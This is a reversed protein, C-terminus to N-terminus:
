CLTKKTWVLRNEKCFLTGHLNLRLKGSKSRPGEDLPRLVFKFSQIFLIAQIWRDRSRPGEDLSTRLRKEQSSYHVIKCCMWPYTRTMNKTHTPHRWLTCMLWPRKDAAFSCNVCKLFFHKPWIKKKNPTEEIRVNTMGKKDAAFSCDRSCDLSPDIFCILLASWISRSHIHAIYAWECGAEMMQCKRAQWKPSTMDKVRLKEADVALLWGM